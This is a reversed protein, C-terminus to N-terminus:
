ENDVVYVKVSDMKTHGHDDVYGGYITVTYGIFEEWVAFVIHANGDEDTMSSPNVLSVWDTGIQYMYDSEWMIHQAWGCETTIDLVSYTQRLNNNFELQYVGDNSPLTSTIDFVCECDEESVDSMFPNSCGIVLFILSLFLRIM